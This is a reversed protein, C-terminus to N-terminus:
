NKMNKENCAEVNGAATQNLRYVTFGETNYDMKEISTLFFQFNRQGNQIADLLRNFGAQDISSFSTSDILLITSNFKAHYEAIKLTIELLVRLQEGHSLRRFSFEPRSASFKILLDSEEENFYIDNFFLKKDRMISGIVNIFENETLKFYSSLRWILSKEKEESSLSNLYDWYSESIFLITMTPVLFPMISENFSYSVTDKRDIAINFKDFQNKFYYINCYSNVKPYRDNTWRDLYTKESLSAILELILTKGVGNNGYIINRDSFELTVQETILGFNSLEVKTILGKDVNIGSQKLKIKKEHTEKIFKLYPTTFTEQDRDILIAHNNCLWIGNEISSREASTLTSDYRRSGTGESAASIHAAQGTLSISDNKEDSPGVTIANCISCLYGARQALQRKTKEPFNDRPM